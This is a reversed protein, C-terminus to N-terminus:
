SFSVQDISGSLRITGGNGRLQEVLASLDDAELTFGINTGSVAGGSFGGTSSSFPAFGKKSAAASGGSLKTTYSEMGSGTGAVTNTVPLNNTYTQIGAGSPSSVSVPISSLYTQIGSGTPSGSTSASNLAELYNGGAAVPASSEAPAAAVPAAAAPAAPAPPPPVAAGTSPVANKPLADLYSAMGSGTISSSAPSKLADLYSSGNAAGSPASIVGTSGGLSELYSLSFAPALVSGLVATTLAIKM